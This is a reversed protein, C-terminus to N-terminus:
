TLYLYNPLLTSMHYEEHVGGTRYVTACISAQEFSQPVSPNRYLYCSYVLAPRYQRVPTDPLVNQHPPEYPLPRAVSLLSTKTSTCRRWYSLYQMPDEELTARISANRTSQPYTFNAMLYQASVLLHMVELCQPIFRVMGSVYVYSSKTSTCKPAVAFVGYEKADAISSYHHNQLDEPYPAMATEQSAPQSPPTNLMSDAITLLAPFLTAIIDSLIEVNQCFGHANIYYPLFCIDTGSRKFTGSM